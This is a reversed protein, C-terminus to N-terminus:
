CHSLVRVVRQEVPQLGAWRDILLQLLAEVAFAYRVSPVPLADVAQSFHVHKQKTPDFLILFVASIKPIAKVLAGPVVGDLVIPLVLQHRADVQLYVVEFGPHLLDWPLDLLILVFQQSM